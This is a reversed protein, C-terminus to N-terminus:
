SIKRYRTSRGLGIREVKKLKILKTLAQYVTPGAVKTKEVIEAPAAESVDQLYNWVALQKSSLIKEIDEKSILEIAKQSQKLIVALFFDLWATITEKRTGFSKQSQRLAAYYANKNDEILKEHSVYPMYLYGAKLLLLNTIIRSLRGNGDRFPHIKLLEVVFNGIVLLPHLQEAELAQRTWEVLEQMEKPTLYAKTTEFVVGVSKGEADFIEVTNETKKYHGRHGEDKAAYKLLENHFHKITSESFPIAKWSEFVNKLLEYYGSVEQSDRSEWKKVKLGQMLKAVEEDTLRAGEIRTSAGTSTVLVSRKLRTLFHPSAQLGGAWKGKLEDINTIKLWLNNPINKLRQDFRNTKPMNKRM